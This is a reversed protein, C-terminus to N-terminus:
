TSTDHSAHMYQPIDSLEPEVWENEDVNFNLKFLQLLERIEEDCFNRELWYCMVDVHEDLKSDNLQNQGEKINLLTSSLTKGRM